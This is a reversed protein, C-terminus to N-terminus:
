AGARDRVLIRGAVLGVLSDYTSTNSSQVLGSRHRVQIRTNRAAEYLRRFILDSVAYLNQRGIAEAMQAWRLREEVGMQFNAHAAVAASPKMFSYGSAAGLTGMEVKTHGQGKHWRKSLFM